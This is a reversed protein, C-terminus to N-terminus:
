LPWPLFSPYRLFLLIPQPRRRPPSGGDPSLVGYCLRSLFVQEGPLPLSVPNFPSPLSWRITINTHEPLVQRLGMASPKMFRKRSSDGNPPAKAAHEDPVIAERPSGALSIATLVIFSCPISMDLCLDEGAPIQIGGSSVRKKQM